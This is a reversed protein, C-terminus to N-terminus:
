KSKLFEINCNITVEDGVALGGADLTKNWTLGWDKRNIKGTFKFGAKTNGFPDKEITGGYNADLVVQKTVGHLTLNGELKYKNKSKGVPKFSTSVFTMTPYKETNFFDASKLHGDRQADDTDISNVDITLTM